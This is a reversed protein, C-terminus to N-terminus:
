QIQKLAAMTMQILTTKSFTKLVLLQEKLASAVMQLQEKKKICNRDSQCHPRATMTLDMICLPVNATAAATLLFLHWTPAKTIVLNITAKLISPEV